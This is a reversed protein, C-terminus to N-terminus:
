IHQPCAKEYCKKSQVQEDEWDLYNVGLRKKTENFIKLM